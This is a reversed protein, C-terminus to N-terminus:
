RMAEHMRLKYRAVLGSIPNSNLAYDKALSINERATELSYHIKEKLSLKQKAKEFDESLEGIDQYCKDEDLTMAKYVLGKYRRDIKLSKLAKNLNIEHNEPTILGKSEINPGQHLAIKMKRGNIRIPTGNRNEKVLYNFRTTFEIPDILYLITAGVSYVETTLDAKAKKGTILANILPPRTFQTGGRTPLVEAKIHKLLKALQFDTLSLNGNKYFLNEPKIDGHIVKEKLNLYKVVSILQGIVQILEDWKIRGGDRYFDAISRGNDKEINALRGGSLVVTDLTKSINAHDLRKSWFRENEDLDYKSKNILIQVSSKPTKKPVKIVVDDGNIGYLSYAERSCGEGVNIRETIEHFSYGKEKLIKIDKSTLASSNDLFSQFAWQMKLFDFTEKKDFATVSM